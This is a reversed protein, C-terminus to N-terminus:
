LWKLLDRERKVREDEIYDIRRDKTNVLHTFLLFIGVVGLICLATFITDLM